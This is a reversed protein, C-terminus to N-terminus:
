DRDDDHSTEELVVEALYREVIEEALVDLLRDLALDREVEAQM